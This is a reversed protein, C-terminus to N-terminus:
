LSEKRRYLSFDFHLVSTLLKCNALLICANRIQSQAKPMRFPPVLFHKNAQRGADRTKEIPQEVRDEGGTGRVTEGAITAGWCVDRGVAPALLWLVSRRCGRISAAVMMRWAAAM